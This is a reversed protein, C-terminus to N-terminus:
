LLTKLVKLVGQNLNTDAQFRAAKKVEQRANGIAYSYYAQALMEMDNLQDGFAMTEEPSIQLSEQLLKVAEGKNIDMRMCDLWMDGSIAMKLHNKYKDILGAAAQEVKSSRYVSVKIVPEEIISVDDVLKVQYRYGNVMWDIFETDSKEMYVYDQGSVMLKLDDYRKVDAILSKVVNLDITNLFLNRGHCGVYAGNDSIYFIKEKIPDFLREISAWQRGSAVAFQVGQQRLRSIVDFLEPNIDPTGDEVLTGDIDSVILKIM